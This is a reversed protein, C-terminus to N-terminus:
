VLCKNSNKEGNQSSKLVKLKLYLAEELVKSKLYLAEEVPMDKFGRPM